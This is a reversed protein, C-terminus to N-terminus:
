FTGGGGKSAKTYFIETKEALWNRKTKISIDPLWLDMPQFNQISIEKHM